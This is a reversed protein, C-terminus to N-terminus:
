AGDAVGGEKYDEVLMSNEQDAAARMEPPLAEHQQARDMLVAVNDLKRDVEAALTRATLPSPLPFECDLAMAALPDDEAMPMDPSQDRGALSQKLAQLRDHMEDLQATSIAM